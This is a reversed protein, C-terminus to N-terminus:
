DALREKEREWHQPMQAAVRDLYSEQWDLWTPRSVLDREVRQLHKLGGEVMIVQNGACPAAVKQLEGMGVSLLHSGFLAAQSLSGGTGAIDEHMQFASSVSTIRAQQQHFYQRRDADLSEPTVGAVPNDFVQGAADIVQGVHRPSATATIVLADGGPLSQVGGEVSFSVGLAEQMRADFDAAASGAVVSQAFSSAHRTTPLPKIPCILSVEVESATSDVPVLVVHKGGGWTSSRDSAQQPPTSPNAKQWKSWWADAAKTVSKEDVDGIALFTANAPSFRREFHGLLVDKSVNLAAMMEMAGYGLQEDTGSFTNQLWQTTWYSPHRWRELVDDEWAQQEAKPMPKTPPHLLFPLLQRMSLDPGTDADEVHVQLATYADTHAIPLTYSKKRGWLFEATDKSHPQLHARLIMDDLAGKFGDDFRSFALTFLAQDHGEMPVTHLTVGSRHDKSSAASLYDFAGSKADIAPLTSAQGGLTSTVKSAVGDPTRAPVATVTVAREPTLYLQLYNKMRSTGSSVTAAKHSADLGASGTLLTFVVSDSLVDASSAGGQVDLLHGKSKWVTELLEKQTTSLEEDGYLDLVKGRVKDPDAGSHLGVVCTLASAEAGLRTSCTANKFENGGALRENMDQQVFAAIHRQPWYNTRSTPPLDWTVVLSTHTLAADVTVTRDGRPLQGPAPDTSHSPPAWYEKPLPESPNDPNAFWAFTGEDSEFDIWNFASKPFEKIDSSKLGRLFAYAPLKDRLLSLAQEQSLDGSIAVVTNDARFQRSVWVQADIASLDNLHNDLMAAGLAHYPHDDEYLAEFAAYQLSPTSGDSITDMEQRIAAKEKQEHEYTLGNINGSLLTSMLAAQNTVMASPCASQFVTHDASTFATAECSMRDFVERVEGEQGKHSSRFWLHQALHPVQAQSPKADSLGTDVGVVMNVVPYRTDQRYVIKLGSPMLFQHVKPSLEGATASTGILGALACLLTSRIM